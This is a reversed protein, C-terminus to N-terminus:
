NYKSLLMTFNSMYNAIINLQHWNNEYIDSIKEKWYTQKEFKKTNSEIITNSLFQKIGGGSVGGLKYALEDLAVFM